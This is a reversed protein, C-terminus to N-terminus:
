HTINAESASIDEDVKLAALSQGLALRPNSSTEWARWLQFGDHIVVLCSVEGLTEEDFFAVEYEPATQPEIAINARHEKLWLQIKEEVYDNFRDTPQRENVTIHGSAERM